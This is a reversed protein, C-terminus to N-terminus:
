LHTVTILHDLEKLTIGEKGHRGQKQRESVWVKGLVGLSKNDDVLETVGLDKFCLSSM